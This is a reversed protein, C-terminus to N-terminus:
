NLELGPVEDGSGSDEGFESVLGASPLSIRDGVRGCAGGLTGAEKKKRQEVRWRREWKSRWTMLVLLGILFRWTLLLELDNAVDAGGAM